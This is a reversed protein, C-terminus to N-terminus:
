REAVQVAYVMGSAGNSEPSVRRFGGIEMHKRHVEGHTGYSLLERHVGVGRAHKAHRM